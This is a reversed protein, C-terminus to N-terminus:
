GSLCPIPIQLSPHSALCARVHSHGNPPEDRQLNQWRRTLDDHAWYRDAPALDDLTRRLDEYLGHEHENLLLGASTHQCFVVLTGDGIGSRRVADTVVATVDTFDPADGTQFCLPETWVTFRDNALDTAAPPLSPMMQPRPLQPLKPRRLGLGYLVKDTTPVSARGSFVDYGRSEIVGLIGGYLTWATAVCRRIASPLNTIGDLSSRYYRRTREIEFEMLHVWGPTVKRQDLADQAGFREIDERPIYVRGRDLDEAVDRLFNTLQFAIGLDRAAGVSVPDDVGFIPLLM